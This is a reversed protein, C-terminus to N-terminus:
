RPSDVTEAHRKFIASVILGVLAFGAVVQFVHQHGAPGPSRAPLWGMLPGMFVDPTYGIFSVIGVASGTFTLPVRGEQMIAFYLGRLAFIGLSAAAVDEPVLTRRTM